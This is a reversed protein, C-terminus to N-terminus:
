LVPQPEVGHTHCIEAVEAHSLTRVVRIAGTIIWDGYMMPNTKYRYYGGEPIRALQALRPNLRGSKPNVGNANAEPQYDINDAYEVEAWVTDPHQAIIEGQGNKVGIHSALPIESCHWGPRYALGGLKSKVKGTPLREGPQAELWVGVPTETNANVYLPYLKGAKYRFLKYATKAM